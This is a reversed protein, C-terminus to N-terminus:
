SKLLRAISKRLPALTGREALDFHKYIWRAIAAAEERESCLGAAILEDAMSSQAAAPECCNETLCNKKLDDMTM